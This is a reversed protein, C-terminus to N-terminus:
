VKFLNLKGLFLEAYTSINKGLYYTLYNYNVNEGICFVKTATKNVLSKVKISLLPLDYRLNLNVFFLSSYQKLNELNLSHFYFYRFDLNLLNFNHKELLVHANGHKNLAKKLFISSELDVFDGLLFILQIKAKFNVFKTCIFSFM